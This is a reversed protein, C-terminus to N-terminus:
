KDKTKYGHEHEKRRWSCARILSSLHLVFQCGSQLETSSECGWIWALESWVYLYHVCPCGSYPDCHLLFYLATEKTATIKTQSIYSAAPFGYGSKRFFIHPLVRTYIRGLHMLYTNERKVLSCHIFILIDNADTLLTVFDICFDQTRLQNDCNWSKQLTPPPLVCPFPFLAHFSYCVFFHRAVSFSALCVWIAFYVPKLWRPSEAPSHGVLPPRTLDM